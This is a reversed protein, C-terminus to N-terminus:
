PRIGTKPVSIRVDSAVILEGLWNEIQTGHQSEALSRMFLLPTFGCVECLLPTDICGSLVSPTQTRERASQNSFIM